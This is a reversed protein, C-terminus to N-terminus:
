LARMNRRQLKLSGEEDRQEFHADNHDNRNQKHVPAVYGRLAHQAVAQQLHLSM